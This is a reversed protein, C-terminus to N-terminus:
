IRKFRYTLRYRSNEWTSIYNRQESYTAAQGGIVPQKGHSESNMRLQHLRNWSPEPVHAPNIDTMEFLERAVYTMYDLAIPDAPAWGAYLFAGAVIAAAVIGGVILAVSVSGAGAIALAIATGGGGGISTVLGIQVLGENFYDTFADFFKDIQERAAKESDVELGIIGISLVKRGLADNFLSAPAFSISEGSDVDEQSMINVRSVVPFQIATDAKPLDLTGVIGRFWPEDSGLGDTEVDCGAEDILIQYRQNPSPQLDFLIENSSFEKPPAEGAVIAYNIDNQFVLQISYRGPPIPIDNLGDKVTAPMNFYVYDRVECTSAVLPATTDPQWDTIPVAPIDRFVPNDVKRIRVEAHRTIFNLGRLGVEVGPDVQTVGLCVNRSVSKDFTRYDEGGSCAPFTFGGGGAAPEVHACQVPGGPSVPACSYAFEHPFYNITGRPVNGPVCASENRYWGTEDIANHGIPSIACIWPWPAKVKAFKGPEGPVPFTQEWPRAAGLTPFPPADPGYRMFRGLTLFEGVLNRAFFHPNLPKEDPWSDFRTEFVCERRAAPLADYGDLAAELAARHGAPRGKLFTQLNKEFTNGPPVGNRLRRLILLLIPAVREKIPLAGCLNTIKVKPPTKPKHPYLCKEDIGPICRLLELIQQCCDDGKPTAVPPAPRSPTSPPPPNCNCDDTPEPFGDIQWPDDETTGKPDRGGPGDTPRKTRDYISREASIASRAAPRTKRTAM